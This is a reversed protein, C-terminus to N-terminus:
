FIEKVLLQIEAAAKSDKWEVVGYGQSISDRYAKRDRIITKCLALEPYDALFERAENAENVVPNTPSLTLLGRCVLDPNLDRSATIVEMLSDLTDLDPQSPRFPTLLLHAATMATRLERSDRGAADVIVIDYRGNLDILSPRVNDYQAVCNIKPSDTEARDQAWRSATGQRDADVLCVDNGQRALEAAINVALTTKGCGGKQSGILAIM